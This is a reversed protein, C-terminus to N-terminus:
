LSNSEVMASSIRVEVQSKLLSILELSNPEAMASSFRVEATFALGNVIRKEEFILSYYIGPKSGLQYCPFLRSQKKRSSGM